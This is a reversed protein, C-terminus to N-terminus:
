ASIIKVGNHILFEHITKALQVAGSTDSHLCITEAQIPKIKGSYTVVEGGFVMSRLQAIVTNEDKIVAGKLTRNRLSLDEEYTRDAFVEHVVQLGAEMAVKKSISHQPLYVPINGNFGKIVSVIIEATKQDKAAQNYLAGHPKIHHFSGGEEKLYKNFTNLQDKLSMKLEDSSIDMVKRGFNLTDPYSPHAGISVGFKKALQITSRISEEDGIHGGCAINCSSIYPMIAEDRSIGKGTKWEGLDCNLDICKVM